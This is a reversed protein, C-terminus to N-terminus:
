SGLLRRILDPMGDQRLATLREGNPGIGRDRGTRIRQWVEPALNEEHAFCELKRRLVAEGGLYSVHWGADYLTPLGFNLRLLSLSSPLDRLRFAKAHYWGFTNEWRGYYIMRMGVIIPGEQTGRYIEDLWSPDVLEDADSSIVLTEPDEGEARLQRLYSGLEDRQTEERVWNAEDGEGLNSLDCVLRTLGPWPTLRELYLEKPDGQHTHTGECAVHTVDHSELLQMRTQLIQFEDRFPFVDLIKM